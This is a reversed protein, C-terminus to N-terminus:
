IRSSGAKKINTAKDIFLVGNLHDIEHQFVVAPFGKLDLIVRKGHRNVAEVTVKKHRSVLGFQGPVSLCGEEGEIMAESTKTLVPNMYCEPRAGTNVVIARINKGVQPSAIGVGDAVFMTRVLQDLYAQFEPTTIEEVPVEVSRERLSPTPLTVIPFTDSM